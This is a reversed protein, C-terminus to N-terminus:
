NDEMLMFVEDKLADPLSIGRLALSRNWAKVETPRMTHLVYAFQEVEEDAYSDSPRGQFADLEEDEFYEIPKTSAVMMCDQECMQDLGVCTGCSASPSEIREDSRSNSFKSLWVIAIGLAVAVGLLVFLETM